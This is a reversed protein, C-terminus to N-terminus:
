LGAMDWWARGDSDQGDVEVGESDGSQELYFKMVSTIM